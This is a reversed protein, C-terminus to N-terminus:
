IRDRIAFTASARLFDETSWHEFVSDKFCFCPDSSLKRCFFNLFFSELSKRYSNRRERKIKVTKYKREMRMGKVVDNIKM